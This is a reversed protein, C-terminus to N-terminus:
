FIEVVFHTLAVDSAATQVVATFFVSQALSLNQTLAVATAQVAATVAGGTAATAAFGYGFGSQTTNTDISIIGEVFGQAAVSVTLATRAVVNAAAGFAIGVTKANVNNAGSFYARARIIRQNGNLGASASNPSLAGAPISVSSIVANSAGAPSNVSTDSSFVLLPVAPHSALGGATLIVGDSGTPTFGGAAAAGPFGFGLPIGM